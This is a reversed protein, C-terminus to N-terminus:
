TSFLSQSGKRIGRSCSASLWGDVKRGFSYRKVMRTSGNGHQPIRPGKSIKKGRVLSLLSTQIGPFLKKCKCSGSHIIERCPILSDFCYKKKSRPFLVRCPILFWHWSINWPSFYVYKNNNNNNSNNIPHEMAQNLFRKYNRRQRELM